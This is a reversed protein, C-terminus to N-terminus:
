SKLCCNKKINIGIQKSIHSAGLASETNNYYFGNTYLLILDIGVKSVKSEFYKIMEYCREANQINALSSMSLPFVLYGDTPLKDINHYNM